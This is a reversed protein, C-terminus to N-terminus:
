ELLKKGADFGKEEAPSANQVSYPPIQIIKVKEASGLYLIACFIDYLDYTLPKTRKKANELDQRILEYEERSIDSDYNHEYTIMEM